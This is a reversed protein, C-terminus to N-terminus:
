EGFIYVIAVVFSIFIVVPLMTPGRDTSAHVIASAYLRSTRRLVDREVRQAERAGHEARKAGSLSPWGHNTALSTQAASPMTFTLSASLLSSSSSRSAIPEVSLTPRRASISTM